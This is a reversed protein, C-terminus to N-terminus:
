AQQSAPTQPERYDFWHAQGDVQMACREHSFGATSREVCRAADDTEDTRLGTQTEEDADETAVSEATCAAMLASLALAQTPSLM